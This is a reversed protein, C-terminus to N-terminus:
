QQDALVTAQTILEDIKGSDKLKKLSGNIAELLQANGKNIAVAVGDESGFSVAPVTLNPNSAAYAKAVPSALILADVKNTNIELMLDTIKGISKVKANPIGKAIEEQLTSKQAGIAKGEFGEKSSFQALDVTRVLATQEAAYYPVSFDVNKAREETPVMGAVIFDIKNASLAPLLGEFKMDVIELEVGLDAAIAKAIEIDFGSVELKGDVKAYFEYPPYDAATGLVIKKHSQISTLQDTSSATSSNDTGCGTLNALLAMLAFIIWIKKTKM